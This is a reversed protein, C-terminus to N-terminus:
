VQLLHLNTIEVARGTSPVEEMTNYDTYTACGTIIHDGSQPLISTDLPINRVVDKSQYYDAFYQGNICKLLEGDLFIFIRVNKDGSNQSRAYLPDNKNWAINIENRVREGDSDLSPEGFTVGSISGQEQKNKDEYILKQPSNEGAENVFAEIKRENALSDAQIYINRYYFNLKYLYQSSFDNNNQKLLDILEDTKAAQWFEYLKITGKEGYPAYIPDFTLLLEKEEKPQLTYTYSVVEDAGNIQFPQMNGNANLFLTHVIPVEAPNTVIARYALKEGTYTVNEAFSYEAEEKMLDANPDIWLCQLSNQDTDYISKIEADTQATTGEPRFDLTNGGGNGACGALLLLALLLAAIRGNRKM